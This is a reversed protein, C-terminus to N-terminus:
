SMILENSIFTLIDSKFMKFSEDSKGTYYHKSM